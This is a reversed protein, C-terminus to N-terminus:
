IEPLRDRQFPFKGATFFRYYCFVLFAWGCVQALLSAYAAGIIGETPYLIMNFIFGAVMRLAAEIAVLRPQDLAVLAVGLPAFYIRLIFNPYLIYFVDISILFDPGYWTSIFYPFIVFGPLFLFGVPLLYRYIRGLSERFQAPTELNSFRPLLLSGMTALLILFGQMPMRAANFHGSDGEESIILVEMWDSVIAMFAAALMWLNFRLLRPVLPRWRPAPVSLLFTKAPYFCFFFAISLFPGLAFAYLVHEARLRGGLALLFGALLLFRILGVSPLWLSLRTFSEHSVLVADLYTLISLGAGGLVIIWTLNLLDPHATPLLGPPISASLLGLGALQNLLVIGGMYLGTVAFIFTLAYLKLQLSARLVARFEDGSDKRLAPVLFRVLSQQLGVEAFAQVIFIRALAWGYVGFDEVTLIRPMVLSFVLSVMPNVARASFLLGARRLGPSAILPAIKHIPNL